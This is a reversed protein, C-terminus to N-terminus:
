LLEALAGASSERARWLRDTLGDSLHILVAPLHASLAKKPEPVLASWVQKMAQAIRPNPDFTYRYLTPLLKHLHADLRARSQAALAFAVGKRTNWMASATACEM